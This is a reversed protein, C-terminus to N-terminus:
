FTFIAKKIILSINQKLVTVCLKFFVCFKNVFFDSYKEPNYFLIKKIIMFVFYVHLIVNFLKFLGKLLCTWWKGIILFPSM